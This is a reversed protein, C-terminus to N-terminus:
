DRRMQIRFVYLVPTYPEVDIYRTLNIIERATNLLTRMANESRTIDRSVHLTLRELAIIVHYYYYHTRLAIEKSAGDMLRRRQLPEKPRFDIPISLRWEELLTHVHDIATMTTDDPQMSASISFLSAYAVSLIRGFRVSSVLWNYDAVVSEPTDPIPCGIDNDAIM